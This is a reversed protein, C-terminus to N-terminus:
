VMAYCTERPLPPRPLYSALKRLNHGICLLLFEGLAGRQGRCHFQRFRLNAKFHGFVPEVLAGRKKFEARGVETQMKHRMRQLAEEQDFRCVTRSAAVGRICRDRYECPACAIGRYITLGRARQEMWRVLKQGVPCIYCDEREDYGFHRKDFPQEQDRFKNKKSRAQDADPVYADIGCREWYAVNEVSHYGSDMLLKEPKRGTMAEMQKVQGQVQHSDAPTTVVGVGVIIQQAEDVAAQCNYSTEIRGNHAMFHADPDTVNIKEEGRAKLQTLVQDLRKLRRESSKLHAPLEEGSRDRGYQHDEEEDKQIGARLAEEIQGRKRELEEQTYTKQNSANARIKTGDLAVRGLKVMGMRQCIKVIQVFAERLFVRHEKRFDSITRFDPCQGRTLYTYAAHEQITKMLARSSFTGTAYGYFLVKILLRPDYAPAGVSGERDPLASLDLHEVVEDVVFCLHDPPLIERPTPWFLREQDPQYDRIAM